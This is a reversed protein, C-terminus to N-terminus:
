LPALMWFHQFWYADLVLQIKANKGDANNKRGFGVVVKLFSFWFPFTHPAPVL